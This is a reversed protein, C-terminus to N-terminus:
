QGGQGGSERTLYSSIRAAVNNRIDMHFLPYDLGHYNTGGALGTLARFPGDEQHTVYLVGDGCRASVLNPLPAGLPPFTVGTAADDGLFEIQFRGSPPVGGHHEAAPASAGEPLWSLPNVCVNGAREPEPEARESMTDWHVACHLATADACIGIDPMGAFEAGALGGGILYAAVMRERLPTGHIRERLLVVGHHTGQSHSAIVFPRGQSFHEIFHDFARAVDEYAFRMVATRTDADASIYTFISAERYRPAYVDCCGNFASAQNAMMWRTNEETISDPDLPSTWTAGNLFGTPHIFFVDVDPRVAPDRAAVGAPVLDALDNTGPLAAWSSADAYDPAPAARGPDFPQDPAGFWFGITMKVLAGNGTAFLVVVGVVLLLALAVLIRMLWKM